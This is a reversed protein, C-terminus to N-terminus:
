RRISLELQEPQTELARSDRSFFFVKVHRNDRYLKRRLENAARPALSTRHLDPATGGSHNPFRSCVLGSDQRVPLSRSVSPLGVKRGM